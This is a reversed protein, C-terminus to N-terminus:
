RNSTSSVSERASSERASSAGASHTGTLQARTSSIRHRDTLDRMALFCKMCARADVLADHAGDVGRHFLARHLKELSPFAVRKPSSHPQHISSSNAPPLSYRASSPEQATVSEPVAYKGLFSAGIHMTCQLQRRLLPNGQGLRHFEAGVIKSDFAVNHAIVTDSQLLDVAFRRLAQSLHVGNEMARQVTIGHCRLAGPQIRWGNPRVLFNGESLPQGSLDTMVWALQVVRPWNDARTTPAEMRRPLGSTETDLFLLRTVRLDM